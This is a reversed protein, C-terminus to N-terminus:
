DAYLDIFRTSMVECAAMFLAIGPPIDFNSKEIMRKIPVRLKEKEDDTFPLAKDIKDMRENFTRYRAVMELKEDSDDPYQECIKEKTMYSLEVAERYKEGTGFYRKRKRRENMYHFMPDQIGDFFGIIVDSTFRADLKIKENEPEAAPPIGPIPYQGTETRPEDPPAFASQDFDSASLSFDPGHDMNNVRNTPQEIHKFFDENM